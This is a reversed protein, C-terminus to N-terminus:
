SPALAGPPSASAMISPDVPVEALLRPRFGIRDCAVCYLRVGDVMEGDHALVEDEPLSGVHIHGYAVLPVGAARLDDLYPHPPYHTM